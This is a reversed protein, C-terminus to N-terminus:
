NKSGICYLMEQRKGDSQEAVRQFLFNGSVALTALVEDGLQNEAVRAYSKPSARFVFTKGRENTAYLNGAALMLSSTFVGGLRRKWVEKGTKSNWCM